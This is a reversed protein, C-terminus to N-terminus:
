GLKKRVFFRGRKYLCTIFMNIGFYYLPFLFVFVIAVTPVKEIVPVSPALWGRIAESLVILAATFLLIPGLLIATVRLEYIRVKCNRCKFSFPIKADLLDDTTFVRQCNPCHQKM